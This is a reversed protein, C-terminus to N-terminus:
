MSAIVINCFIKSRIFRLKLIFYTLNNNQHLKFSAPDAGIVSCPVAEKKRHVIPFINVNQKLISDKIIIISALLEIM